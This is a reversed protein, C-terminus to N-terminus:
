KRGICSRPGVHFVQVADRRDDKFEAEGMWREPRFEDPYRFNAPLHNSAWQYVGVSNGGPVFHGAITNGGPRVTERPLAGPGPPYLRLAEEVCALFFPLRHVTELNIQSDSTFSGRVERTARLMSSPNRCLYFTTATMGTASTESGALVIVSSNAVVDPLSM